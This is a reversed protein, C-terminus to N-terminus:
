AASGKHMEALTVAYRQALEVTRQVGQERRFAMLTNKVTQPSRNLADAAAQNSGGGFWWAALTALQTPTPPRTV